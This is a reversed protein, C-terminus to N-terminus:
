PVTLPVKTFSECQGSSDSCVAGSLLVQGSPAVVKVHPPGGAKDDKPDFAFKEPNKDKVLKTGDALQVKWPYDTNIHWGAHGKVHIEGKALTIDANAPPKGDESARAPAGSVLASLAFASVGVLFSPKM